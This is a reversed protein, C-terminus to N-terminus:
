KVLIRFSEIGNVNTVNLVYIGPRQGRFNVIEGKTTVERELFIERGFTDFIRVTGLLGELNLFNEVPNPYIRLNNDPLVSEVFPALLSIHPRIMLSGKVDKNRTWAGVVNYFIRDGFDNTKDLGVFIFDDSFQAFGIYFTESVRINTDLSYYIFEENADKVPILDERRFIPKQDLEKWILVDIAQNAQRPNTFNISIGKLFVEEPVQYQVALQGSKQNIGAAYDASGNDYALFDRLPFYSSVRDNSRFDVTEFRTTDGANVTFLIRDGTILETKIELETESDPVPIKEFTRSSFLRREKTNPVPNFPTNQNIIINNGDTTDRAIMSYEMARFRNELNLFENTVKSWKGNQNKKLLALPYAGYDGLRLNNRRTLSRDPFSSEGATRGTNFYVYDVLWSDFPGSLRGETFFRFQFTDHQFNPLVQIKAETFRNRDLAVGGLQRWVTIWSGEQNLFQLTLQDNEDPLEGRGGAQWYFSLFLSSQNVALIASLNFPNSTVRDANGRETQMLSYPAGYQDVGDFLLMGISPANIGITETYSAGSFTWKLTDLGGSFDDWFPITNNNQTRFRIESPSLAKLKSNPIPTFEMFQGHAHAVIFLGALLGFLRFIYRRSDM